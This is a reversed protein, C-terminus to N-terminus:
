APEKCFTFVIKQSKVVKRQEGLINSYISDVKGIIIKNNETQADESFYLLVSLAILIISIM